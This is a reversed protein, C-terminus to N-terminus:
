PRVRYYERNLGNIWGRVTPMTTKVPISWGTSGSTERTPGDRQVRSWKNPALNGELCDADLLREIETLDTPLPWAKASL